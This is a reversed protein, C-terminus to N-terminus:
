KREISTFAAPVFVEKHEAMGLLFEYTIILEGFHVRIDTLLENFHARNNAYLSLTVTFQGATRACFAIYPSNDVYARVKAAVPKSFEEFQMSLTYLEYGLAAPNLVITYGQIVGRKELRTIRLRVVDESQHLKAAISVTRERCNMALAAIIGRDIEDLAMGVLQNSKIVRAPQQKGTLLGLRSFKYETIYLEIRHQRVIGKLASLIETTTDALNEASEYFLTCVLDSAGCMEALWNVSPHQQLYEIAAAYQKPQSRSLTCYFAAVGASFLSQLLRAVYGKVIHQEKFREMRYQVVERSVGCRKAIATIPLRANEHLAVLIKTDVADLM